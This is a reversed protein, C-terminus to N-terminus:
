KFNETWLTIKKRSSKLLVGLLGIRPTPNNSFTLICKSSYKHGPDCHQKQIASEQQGWMWKNNLKLLPISVSLSCNEILIYQVKM